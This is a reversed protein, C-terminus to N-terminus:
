LPTPTRHFPNYGPKKQTPRGAIPPLNHFKRRKGGCGSELSTGMDRAIDNLHRPSGSRKRLSVGGGYLDSTDAPRTGEGVLTPDLKRLEAVEDFTPIAAWAYDYLRGMDWRRRECIKRVAGQMKQPLYNEAVKYFGAEPSLAPYAEIMLAPRILLGIRPMPIKFKYAIAVRTAGSSVMELFDARVVEDNLIRGYESLEWNNEPMPDQAQVGRARKKKESVPMNKRYDQIVRWAHAQVDPLTYLWSKQSQMLARQATLAYNDSQKRSCRKLNANLTVVTLTTEFLTAAHSTLTAAHSTLTAIDPQEFKAM